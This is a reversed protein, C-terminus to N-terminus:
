CKKSFELFVQYDRIYDDEDFCESAMVLLVCEPSFDHMEHWVMSGILLGQTPSDLWAEQRLNGDDFVMRCRGTVCVVLQRLHRHAHFGRSVGLKTGFIYYVRRIKFPVTIEEELAVLSGREDGLLSFHIWHFLNM